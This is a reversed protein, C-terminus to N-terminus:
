SLDVEVGVQCTKNTGQRLGTKVEDTSLDSGTWSVENKERESM